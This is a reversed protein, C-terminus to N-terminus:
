LKFHCRQYYRLFIYNKLKKTRLNKCIVKNLLIRHFHVEFLPCNHFPQICFNQFEILHMPHFRECFQVKEGFIDPYRLTKDLFTVLHNLWLVLRFLITVGNIMTSRLTKVIDNLRKKFVPTQDPNTKPLRGGSMKKFCM